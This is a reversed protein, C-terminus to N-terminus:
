FLLWGSTFELWSHVSSPPVTLTLLRRLDPDPQAFIFGDRLIRPKLVYGCNGNQAFMSLNYFQNKDSTQYNLAVSTFIDYNFFDCQLLDIM